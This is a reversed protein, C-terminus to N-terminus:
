DEMWRVDDGPECNEDIYREVEKKTWDQPLAVSTGDRHTIQVNYVGWGKPSIRIINRGLDM